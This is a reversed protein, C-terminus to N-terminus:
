LNRIVEDVLQLFEPKKRIEPEWALGMSKLDYEKTITAGEKGEQKSLICAHDALALSSPIDHSVIVLTNMENLVSIQNLLDIVKNVLVTDL